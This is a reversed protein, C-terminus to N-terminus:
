HAPVQAADRTGIADWTASDLRAPCIIAEMLSERIVNTPRQMDAVRPLNVVAVTGPAANILILEIVAGLGDLNNVSICSAVSTAVTWAM